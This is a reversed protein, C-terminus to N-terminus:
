IIELALLDDIKIRIKTEEKVAGDLLNEKLYNSTDNQKSENNKQSRELEIYKEINDVKSIKGSARIFSKNKYYELEVLLDDTLAQKLKFNIEEKLQEDLEPKELQGEKEKLEKLRKKHEVLMLSTWKKNGRDKINM